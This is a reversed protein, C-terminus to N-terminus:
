AFEDPLLIKKLCLKVFVPIARSKACLEKVIRSSPIQYDQCVTESIDDDEISLLCDWNRALLLNIFNLGSLRILYKISVSRAKSTSYNSQRAQTSLSCLCRKRPHLPHYRRAATFAWVLKWEVVCLEYDFWSKWGACHEQSVSLKIWNHSSLHNLIKWWQLRSCLESSCTFAWLTKM